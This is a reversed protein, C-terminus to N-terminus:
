LTGSTWSPADEPTALDVRVGIFAGTPLRSWPYPWPHPLLTTRWITHRALVGLARRLAGALEPPSYFRVDRWLPLGSRKRRWALPHWRNLVGLVIGGRAVRAAERLAGGPDSLFELTTVLLTVDFSGAAFPLAAAGGRVLAVGGRRAAEALMPASRDLGVVQWGQGGLWRAFHGTGTGIELTSHARPFGALLWGLLGRELRDAARGEGEYWEEYGAAAGPDAFPDAM